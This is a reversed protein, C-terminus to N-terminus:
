EAAQEQQAGEEGNALQGIVGEIGSKAALAADALSNMPPAADQPPAAAEAPQAQGEATNEPEEGEAGEEEEEEEEEEIKQSAIYHRPRIIPEPLSEPRKYKKFVVQGDDKRALLVDAETDCCDWHELVVRMRAPSSENMQATVSFGEGGLHSGIRQRAGPQVFKGKIEQYAAKCGPGATISLNETTRVIAIVMQNKRWLGAWAGAIIFVRENKAQPAQKTAVDDKTSARAQDPASEAEVGLGNKTDRVEYVVCGKTSVSFVTSKFVWRQLENPGICLNLPPECQGISTTYAGDILQLYQHQNIVTIATSTRRLRETDELQRAVSQFESLVGQVGSLVSGIDKLNSVVTSATNTPQSAM